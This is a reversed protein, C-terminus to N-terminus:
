IKDKLVGVPVYSNDHPKLHTKDLGTDHKQEQKKNQGTSPAEWQPTLSWIDATNDITNDGEGKQNLSQVTFGLAQQHKWM